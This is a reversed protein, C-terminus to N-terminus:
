TNAVPRQNRQLQDRGVSDGVRDEVAFEGVRRAEGAGFGLAGVEQMQSSAAGTVGQDEPM